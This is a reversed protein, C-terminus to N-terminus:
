TTRVAHRSPTGRLTRLSLSLGSASSGLSLNQHHATSRNHAGRLRPALWNWPGADSLDPHRLHPTALGVKKASETLLKRRGKKSMNAVPRISTQLWWTLIQASDAGVTAVAHALQGAGASLMSKMAM